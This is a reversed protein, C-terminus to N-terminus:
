RAPLSVLVPINTSSEVGEPAIYTNRLAFLLGILVFVAGIGGGIGGGLYILPKPSTPRSAGSPQQIV